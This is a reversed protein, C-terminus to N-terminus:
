ELPIDRSLNLLEKERDEVTAAHRHKDEADWMATVDAEKLTVTCVARLPRGDKAFMTLKTAVTQVICRFPRGVGWVAVCLPPRRQWSDSSTMRRPETLAILADIAAQISKDDEVGDFLLEVTMTQPETGTWSLAQRGGSPKKGNGNAPSWSAQAQRGLEKPNYQASIEIADDPGGDVSALVFRDTAPTFVGLSTANVKQM